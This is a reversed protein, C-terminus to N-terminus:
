RVFQLQENARQSAPGGCVSSARPESAKSRARRVVAPVGAPVGASVNKPVDASVDTPADTPVDTPVDKPAAPQGQVDALRFEEASVDDQLEPALVADEAVGEHAGDAKVEHVDDGELAVRHRQPPRRQPVPPLPM